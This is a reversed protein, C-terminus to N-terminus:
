TKAQPLPYSLVVVYSEPIVSQAELSATVSLASQEEHAPNFDATVISMVLDIEWM